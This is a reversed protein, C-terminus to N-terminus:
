SQSRRPHRPQYQRLPPDRRPLRWGPTCLGPRRAWKGLIDWLAQDLASLVRFGFRDLKAPDFLAVLKEIQRPDRGILADSMPRVTGLHDSRRVAPNLEGLGRIGEDTDIHVFTWDVRETVRVTELNIATIKM